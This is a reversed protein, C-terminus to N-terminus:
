GLKRHDNGRRRDVSTRRREVEFSEAFRPIGLDQNRRSRIRGPLAIQRGGLSTSFPQYKEIRVAAKFRIIEVPKGGVCPPTELDDPAGNEKKSPCTGQFYNKLAQQAMRKKSACRARAILRPSNKPSAIVCLENEAIQRHATIDKELEWAELFPKIRVLFVFPKRAQVCASDSAPM